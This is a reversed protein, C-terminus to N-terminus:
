VRLFGQHGYFQSFQTFPPFGFLWIGKSRRDQYITKIMEKRDEKRTKDVMDKHQTSPTLELSPYTFIHVFISM